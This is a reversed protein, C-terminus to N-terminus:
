TTSAAYFINSIFMMLVSFVLFLIHLHSSYTQVKTNMIFNNDVSGVLLKSSFHHEPPSARGRIYGGAACVAYSDGAALRGGGWGSAFEELSNEALEM